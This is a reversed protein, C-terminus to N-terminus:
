RVRTWGIMASRGLAVPKSARIPRTRTWGISSGSKQEECKHLEEDLRGDHRRHM